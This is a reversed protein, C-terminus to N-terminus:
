IERAIKSAGIIEGQENRIPSVSLSVDIRTGDKRVRVTEYHEIREGRSIQGLIHPEENVRDPPMLITVPNGIAEDATYGFIREAGQNWSQIIGKLTKTIIADDSSEVVAALHARFVEITQWDPVKLKNQIDHDLM